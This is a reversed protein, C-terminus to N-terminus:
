DAPPDDKSLLTLYEIACEALAPVSIATEWRQVTRESIKLLDALEVQLLDLATRRTAFETGTM